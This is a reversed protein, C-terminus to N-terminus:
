GEGGGVDRRVGRRGGVGWCGLVRRVICLLSRLTALRVGWEVSSVRCEGRGMGRRWICGAGSENVSRKLPSGIRWAAEFGNGAPERRGRRGAGGRAALGDLAAFARSQRSVGGLCGKILGNRRHSHLRSSLVAGAVPEAVGWAGREAREVREVSRKRGQAAKRCWEQV